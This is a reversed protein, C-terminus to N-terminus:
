QAEVKVTFQGSVNAYPRVEVTYTGLTRIADPLAIKKKDIDIHYKESLLSAIEKNTVAGFLKGEEGAKAKIVITLAEVRKVTELAAEREKQERMANSKAKENLEKIKANTAEVALNQPFLFNRAYGDSVNVVQGKAGKGKVDSLLIVKM